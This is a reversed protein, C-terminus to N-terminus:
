LARMNRMNKLFLNYTFISRHMDKKIVASNIMKILGLSGQFDGTIIINYQKCVYHTTQDLTQPYLLTSM